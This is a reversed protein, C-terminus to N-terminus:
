FYSVEISKIAIGLAIIKKEGRLVNPLWLRDTTVFIESVDNNIKSPSLIFDIKKTSLKKMQCTKVIQNEFGISVKLPPVSHFEISIKNKLNKKTPIYFTAKGTTWLGIIPKDIYITNYGIQQSDIRKDFDLFSRLKKTKLFEIVDNKFLKDILGLDNKSLKDIVDILESNQNKLEHYIKGSSLGEQLNNYKKVLGVLKRIKKFPDDEQKSVDSLIKSILNV